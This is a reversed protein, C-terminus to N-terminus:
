AGQQVARDVQAHFGTEIRFHFAPESKGQLFTGLQGQQAIRQIAALGCFQNFPARRNLSATVRGAYM